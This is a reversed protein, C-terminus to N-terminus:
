NLPKSAIAEGYAHGCFAGPHNKWKDYSARIDNCLEESSAGYKIAAEVIEDSLLFRDILDYVVAIEELSNYTNFSATVRINEFGAQVLYGKMEKGMQPHGDDARVLDEFMDWSRRTGGFDPFVFSSECIMERCSIIGGPKLVRKAEALASRTDPIHILVRHSHVVDFFGDDFPLDTADGVHFIANDLGMAKAACRALRVQSEEMDVGHLEGPAVAAALGVSITGTGCGFDLVRLGSRLYPLLHRAHSDATARGLHDVAGEGFGMTYDPTAPISVEMTM